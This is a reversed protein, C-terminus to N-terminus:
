LDGSGSQSLMDVDQLYGTEIIHSRDEEATENVILQVYRDQKADLAANRFVFKVEEDKEIFMTMREDGNMREHIIKQRNARVRTRDEIATKLASITFENFSCLHSDKNTGKRVFFEINPRQAEPFMYDKAQKATPREEKDKLMEKILIILKKDDKFYTHDNIDFKGQKFAEVEEKLISHKQIPYRSIFYLIMGASYIDVKFDYTNTDLEPATYSTKWEIPTLKEYKAQNTWDSRESIEIGIYRAYGFDGIKIHIDDMRQPNQNVVLINGPHIDRHVWGISHIFVLGNLIQEFVRQYFRPSDQTLFTNNQRVFATLNCSCLEMQICLKREHGVLIKWSDFYQIINSNESQTSRILAEIERDQYKKRAEDGENYAMIKIAFMKNKHEGEKIYKAKVVKGYAGKGLVADKEDDCHFDRQADLALKLKMHETAM